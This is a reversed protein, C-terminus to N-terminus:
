IRPCRAPLPLCRAPLAPAGTMGLSHEHELVESGSSDRVQPICQMLFINHKSIRYRIKTRGAYSIRYRRRQAGHGFLFIGNLFQGSFSIQGSSVPTCTCVSVGVSVDLFDHHLINHYMYHSSFRLIRHTGQTARARLARLSFNGRLFGSRSLFGSGGLGSLM